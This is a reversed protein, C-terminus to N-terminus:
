RDNVTFSIGKVKEQTLAVVLINRIFTKTQLQDKYPVPLSKPVIRYQVTGYYDRSYIQRKVMAPYIVVAQGCVIKNEQM